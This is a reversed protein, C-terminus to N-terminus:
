VAGGFMSRVSAAFELWHEKLTKKVKITAGGFLVVGEILITPAGPENTSPARNDIGGFVCVAKSHTNVHEPVLFTAGGFLCFLTIKTTPASFRADSFDLEAGGFVNLMWIHRPVQWAGSRNSGGFIHVQYDTDDDEVATDEPRIGLEMRKKAAYAQDTALPLDATLAALAAEARFARSAAERRRSTRALSDPPVASGAVGAPPPFPLAL